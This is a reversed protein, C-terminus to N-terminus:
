PWNNLGAYADIGFALSSPSSNPPWVSPPLRLKLPMTPTPARQWGSRKSRLHRSISAVLIPRRVWQSFIALFANRIKALRKREADLQVRQSRAKNIHAVITGLKAVTDKLPASDNQLGRIRALIDEARLSTLAVTESDIREISLTAKTM